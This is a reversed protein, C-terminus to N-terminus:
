TISNDALIFIRDSARYTQADSPISVYNDYNHNSSYWAAWRSFLSVARENTAEVEDGSLRDHIWISRTGDVGLDFEIEGSRTHWEIQVSGDGGPVLFPAVSNHSNALADRILRAAENLLWPKIPGSGPGDWGQSLTRLRQLRAEFENAWSSDQAPSSARSVPLVDSRIDPLGAVPRYRYMPRGSPPSREVTTATFIWTFDPPPLIPTQEIV